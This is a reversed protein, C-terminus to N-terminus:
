RLKTRSSPETPEPTALEIATAPPETTSATPPSFTLGLWIVETAVVAGAVVGDVDGVEVTLLLPSRVAM